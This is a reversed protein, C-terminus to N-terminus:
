LSKIYNWVTTWSGGNFVDKMGNRKMINMAQSSRIGSECCFVVPKKMDLIRQINISIRDIPINISGPVKGSDFEHPTRVDIVIAGRKLANKVTGSKLFSFLGM